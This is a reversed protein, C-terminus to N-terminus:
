IHILSLDLNVPTTYGDVGSTVRGNAPNFTPAAPGLIGDDNDDTFGAEKTDFCGDGDADTDKHDPLGDEDTHVVTCEAELSEKFMRVDDLVVYDSTYSGGPTDEGEGDTGGDACFQIRHSTATATFQLEALTWTQVGVGEFAREPSFLTASLGTAPFAQGVGATGIEVRWRGLSGITTQGEAGAMSQYFTIKYVAGIELAPLGGVGVDAYFCEPGQVKSDWAGAFVGGQPSPAMGNASSCMNPCQGGFDCPDVHDGIPLARANGPTNEDGIWTDATLNGNSWQGPTQVKSNKCHEDPYNADGVGGALTAEFSGDVGLNVAALCNLGEDIDLIVDNHDDDDETNIVGDGDDDDGPNTGFRIIKPFEKTINLTKQTKRRKLEQNRQAIDLERKVILSKNLDRIIKKATLRGTVIYVNNRNDIINEKLDYNQAFFLKQFLYFNM